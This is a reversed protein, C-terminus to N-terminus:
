GSNVERAVQEHDDCFWVDMTFNGQKRLAAHVAKKGCHMCNRAHGKENPFGSM